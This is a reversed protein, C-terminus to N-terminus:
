ITARKHTPGVEVCLCLGGPVWSVPENGFSKVEFIWHVATKQWISKRSWDKLVDHGNEILVKTEYEPFEHPYVKDSMILARTTDYVICPTVLLSFEECVSKVVADIGRLPPLANSVSVRQFDEDEDEEEDDEEDEDRDKDKDEGKGQGVSIAYHNLLSFGLKGGRPLFSPDSLLKSLKERFALENWTTCAISSPLGPFVSTDRHYLDYKLTVCHGSIIPSVTREVGCFYAAYAIYSASGDKMRKEFDVVYEDELHRLLMNGGEYRTPFSIILSAFMLESVSPDKVGKCHSGKGAILITSDFMTHKSLTLLRVTCMLNVYSQKWVGNKWTDMWCFHDFLECYGAM